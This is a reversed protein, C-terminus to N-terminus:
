MRLVPSVKQSIEDRLGQGDKVEGIGESRNKKYKRIKQSRKSNQKSFLNMTFSLLQERRREPRLPLWESMSIVEMAAGSFGSIGAM